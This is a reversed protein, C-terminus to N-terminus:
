NVAGTAATILGSLLSVYTQPLAHWNDPNPITAGTLVGEEDYLPQEEPVDVWFTDQGQEFLRGAAQAEWQAIVKQAVPDIIMRTIVKDEVTITYSM